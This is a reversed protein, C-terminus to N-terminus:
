RWIWAVVTAGARVANAREEALAQSTEAPRLTLLVDVLAGAVGALVTGVAGVADVAVGAGAGRAKAADVTLVVCRVACLPVARHPCLRQRPQFWPSLDRHQGPSTQPAKTHSVILQSESPCSTQTGLEQKLPPVQTSPMLVKM